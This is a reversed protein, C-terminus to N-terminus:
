EEAKAEIIYHNIQNQYFFMPIMALVGFISFLIVEKSLSGGRMFSWVSFAILMTSLCFWVNRIPKCYESKDANTTHLEFPRGDNKKEVILLEKNYSGPKTSIQGAGSGYPRWRMKFISYNLNANKYFITYGISELFTRYEKGSQYSKNALFEVCYQYEDPQCEEFNYNLKGTKVLRYGKQAMKNLWKEQTILFLGFFRYCKKM